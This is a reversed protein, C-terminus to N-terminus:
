GSSIEKQLSRHGAIKESAPTKKAPQPNEAAATRINVYNQNCYFALLIQFHNGRIYIHTAYPLITYFTHTLLQLYLEVSFIDTRVIYVNGRSDHGLLATFAQAKCCLTLTLSEHSWGCGSPYHNSSRFLLFQIVRFKSAQWFKRSGFFVRSNRQKLSVLVDVRYLM